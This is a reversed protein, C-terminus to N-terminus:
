IGPSAHLVSNDNLRLGVVVDLLSIAPDGLMRGDICGPPEVSQQLYDIRQAPVWSATGKGRFALPKLPIDALAKVTGVADEKGHRTIRNANKMGPM